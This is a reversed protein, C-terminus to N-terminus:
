LRECGRKIRHGRIIFGGHAVPKLWTAPHQRRGVEPVTAWSMMCPNSKQHPPRNCFLPAWFYFVVWVTALLFEFRVDRSKFHLKGHCTIASGCLNSPLTVLVGQINKKKKPRKLYTFSNFNFFVLFDWCVAVLGVSLSGAKQEQRLEVRASFNTESRRALCTSLRTQRWIDRQSSLRTWTGTHSKEAGLRATALPCRSRFRLLSTAESSKHQKWVNAHCCYM